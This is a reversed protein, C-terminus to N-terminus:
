ANVTGSSWSQVVVLSMLSLDVIVPCECFIFQCFVLPFSYQKAQLKFFSSQVAFIYSLSIIFLNIFVSM